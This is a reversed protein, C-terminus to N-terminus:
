YPWVHFISCYDSFNIYHEASFERKTKVSYVAIYEAKLLVVNQENENKANFNLKVQVLLVNHDADESYDTSASIAYDYGENKGKPVPYLQCSNQILAIDELQVNNSVELATDLQSISQATKKKAM